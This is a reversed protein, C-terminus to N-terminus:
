AGRDALYEGVQMGALTAENILNRAGDLSHGATILADYLEGTTAHPYEAALTSLDTNVRAHERERTASRPSLTFTIM